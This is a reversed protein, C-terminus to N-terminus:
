SSAHFSENEFRSRRQLPDTVYIQINNKSFKFKIKTKFDPLLQQLVM